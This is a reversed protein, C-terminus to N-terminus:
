RAHGTVMAQFPPRPEALHLDVRCAWLLLLATAVAVPLSYTMRRTRPKPERNGQRKAGAHLAQLRSGVAGPKLGGILVQGVLLVLLVVTSGLMLFVILKPGVWAGLAAMLKVDGGGCTGLIWMAFFLAFGVLFGFLALLFGDLCGLFLGEGSLIWLDKEGAGLLAGRVVNFLVGLALM